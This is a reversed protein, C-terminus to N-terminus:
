FVEEYLENGLKWKRPKESRALTAWESLVDRKPVKLEISDEHLVVLVPKGERLGLHERIKKPIVVEGRQGLKLQMSRLFPITSLLVKQIVKLSIRFNSRFNGTPILRDELPMMGAKFYASAATKRPFSVTSRGALVHAQPRLLPKAPIIGVFGRPRL